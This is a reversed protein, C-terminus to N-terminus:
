TPLIQGLELITKATVTRYQTLDSEVYYDKV